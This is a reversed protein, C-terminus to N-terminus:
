EIMKLLSWFGIGVHTKENKLRYLDDTSIYEVCYIILIDVVFAYSPVDKVVGVVGSQPFDVSQSAPMRSEVAV